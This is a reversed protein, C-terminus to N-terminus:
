AEIIRSKYRGACFLGRCAWVQAGCDAPKNRRRKNVEIADEEESGGRVVQAQWSAHTPGSLMTRIVEFLVLDTKPSTSWQVRRLGYRTICNPSRCESWSICGGISLSEGLGDYCCPNPYLGGIATSGTCEATLIQGDFLELSGTRLHPCIYGNLTHLANSLAQHTTVEGDKITILPFARRMEITGKGLYHLFPNLLPMMLSYYINGRADLSHEFTCRLQVGELVCAGRWLCEASWSFHEYLGVLGELGTCIRTKPSTDPCPQSASFHWPAHTTLCQSCGLRGLRSDSGTKDCRRQYEDQLKYRRDQRLLFVLQWRESM